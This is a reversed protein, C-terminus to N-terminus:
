PCPTNISDHPLCGPDDPSCSRRCRWKRPRRITAASTCAVARVGRRPASTLTMLRAQLAQTGGIVNAQIVGSPAEAREPEFRAAGHTKLLQVPEAARPPSPQTQPRPAVRSSARPDANQLRRKM